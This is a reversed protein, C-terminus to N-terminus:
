TLGLLKKVSRIKGHLEQWEKHLDSAPVVGCGAGVRAQNNKWQINRISVVCISRNRRGVETPWDIGFPAGFRFRRGSPEQLDLTKLWRMGFGKPFAGLAPTPHIAGVIENWALDDRDCFVQIPTFLHSLHPLVLETTQGAMVKGFPGLASRIGEIVLQHEELEKPDDLLPLCSSGKLRTGALAMTEILCVDKTSRQFLLEPTAGLVGEDREWLGYLYCPIGQTNRLLESLLAARTLENCHWSVSDFVVPVAKRLHGMQFHNKLELFANQFSDFDPGRWSVEPKTYASCPLPAHTNLWQHLHDLLDARTTNQFEKFCFWPRDTELFFDPAFISLAGALPQATRIPEGWGIWVEETSSHASFEPSGAEKEM